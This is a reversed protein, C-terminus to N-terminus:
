PKAKGSMSEPDACVLIDLSKTVRPQVVLGARPALEQARGRTIKEGERACELAGTFCLTLGRM